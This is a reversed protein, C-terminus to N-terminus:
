LVHQLTFGVALVILTIGALSEARREMRAGLLEGFTLGAFTLSFTTISIAILLPIFPIAAVAVAMGVGFSDLSVSLSTMLLGSGKSPDFTAARETKFSEYLMRAGIIALLGFGFYAAADGVLKGAHAGLAYGLVQMSIEALAFSLGFRLNASSSLRAVGLSISIALVDLGVAAAVVLIKASDVLDHHIDM